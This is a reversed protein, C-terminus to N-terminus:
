FPITDSDFDEAKEVVPKVKANQQDALKVYDQVCNKAQYTGQAEQRAITVFGMAGIFDEPKITKAEYEAIKGISDCLHRLKFAWQKNLLIYDFITRPRDAIVNLEVKIMPVGKKSVMPNGYADCDHFQLVEFQYDGDDALDLCEEESFPDYQM